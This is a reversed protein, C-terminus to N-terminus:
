YLLMMVFCVCMAGFTLPLSVGPDVSVLANLSKIAFFAGLGFSFLAFILTVVRM